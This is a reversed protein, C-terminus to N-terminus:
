LGAPHRAEFGWTERGDAHWRPGETGYNGTTDLRLGAIVAFTHGERAYITIWRGHGRAGYNLLESSQVPTALVGAYHLAFSVTGSCDYGSDYFSGHGGGWKYPMRRLANAAWIARKVAEPANAPAYAVGHRIVARNGRVTPQNGGHLAAPAPAYDNDSSEPPCFPRPEQQNFAYYYGQARVSASGCLLAIFILLSRSKKLAMIEPFSSEPWM